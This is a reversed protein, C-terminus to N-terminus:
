LLVNSMFCTLSKEVLYLISLRANLWCKVNVTYRKPKTPTKQKRQSCILHMNHQKRIIKFTCNSYAEITYGSNYEVLCCVCVYVCVQKSNAACTIHTSQSVYIVNHTIPVPVVDVYFFTDLINMRQSTWSRVWIILHFQRLYFGLICLILSIYIKSRFHNSCM